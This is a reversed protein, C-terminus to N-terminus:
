TLEQEKADGSHNGSGESSEPKESGGPVPAIRVRVKAARLLRDHFMYGPEIEDIIEDERGEEQVFGVAEHFNPDFLQGRTEIRTLGKGQLIDILQKQVMEIGSVLANLHPDAGEAHSGPVQGSHAIARELNDLVPLVSRLFSEQGFKLFEDKERGLRKKANEFDAATRLMKERLGELEAVQNKLTEFEEKSLRIEQGASEVVPEQTESKKHHDESPKKHSM